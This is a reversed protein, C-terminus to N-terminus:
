PTRFEIQPVSPGPPRAPMPQAPAATATSPQFPTDTPVALSVTAPSVSPQTRQAPAPEPADLLARTATIRYAWFTEDRTGQKERSLGALIGRVTAALVVDESVAHWFRSPNEPPQRVVAAVKTALLTRPLTAWHQVTHSVSIMYCNEWAKAM